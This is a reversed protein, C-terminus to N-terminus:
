TAPATAGEDRTRPASVSRVAELLRRKRIMLHVNQRSVSLLLAAEATDILDPEPSMRWRFAGSM